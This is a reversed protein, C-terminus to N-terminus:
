LDVMAGVAVEAALDLFIERGETGGAVKAHGAHLPGALIGAGGDLRGVHRRRNRRGGKEVETVRQLDDSSCRIWKGGGSRHRGWASACNAGRRGRPDGRSATPRPSM